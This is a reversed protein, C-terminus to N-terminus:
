TRGAIVKETPSLLATETPTLNTIPDKQSAKAAVQTPMPTNGLPPTPAKAEDEWWPKDSMTGKDITIGPEKKYFDEAELRWDANLPTDAMIEYINGLVELTREDLPNRIGYEEALTQFSEKAGETVKFPKFINQTIMEYDKLQNRKDFWVRLEEDSYGLM